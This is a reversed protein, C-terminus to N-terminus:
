SNKIIIKFFSGVQVTYSFRSTYYHRKYPFYSRFFSFWTPLHSKSVYNSASDVVVVDVSGSKTLTNVGSLLNEASNPRSLLLDETNVGMSEALSPDM